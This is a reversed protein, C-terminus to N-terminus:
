EDGSVKGNDSWGLLDPCLGGSDANLFVGGPLAIPDLSFNGSGDTLLPSAPLLPRPIYGGLGTAYLYFYTLNDGWTIGLGAFLADSEYDNNFNDETSAQDVHVWYYPPLAPNTQLPLDTIASDLYDGASHPSGNYTGDAAVVQRDSISQGAQQSDHDLIAAFRIAHGPQLGGQLNSADGYKLVLSDGFCVYEAPVNGAAFSLHFQNIAEQRTLWPPTQNDYYYNQLNVDVTFTPESVDKSGTVISDLDSVFSDQSYDNGVTGRFAVELFLDTANIPIPDASFDFTILIPTSRNISTGSASGDLMVGLNSVTIPASVAIEQFPTRGALFTANDPCNVPHHLVTPDGSVFNNMDFSLHGSLDPQYCSNRHFKAIAVLKGNSILQNLVAGTGSETIPQLVNQVNMQVHNFGYIACGDGPAPGLCPYGDSNMSHATSHDEIAYLGSSPPTIEFGGVGKFFFNM